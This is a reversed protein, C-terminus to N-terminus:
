YQYRYSNSGIMSAFRELKDYDLKDGYRARLLGINFGSDIIQKCYGQKLFKGGPWKKYDIYNINFDESISNIKEM